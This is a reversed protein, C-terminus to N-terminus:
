ELDVYRGVSIGGGTSTFRLDLGSASREVDFCTWEGAALWVSCYEDDSVRWRGEVPGSGSDYSTTGDARFEQLAGNDFVISRATLAAAIEPTSLRTWDDGAAAAPLALVLAALVAPAAKRETV